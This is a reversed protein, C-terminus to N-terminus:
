TDPGNIGHGKTQPTWSSALGWFRAVVFHVEATWNTAKARQSAIFGICAVSTLRPFAEDM